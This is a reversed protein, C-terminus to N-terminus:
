QFPKGESQAGGDVLNLRRQQRRDFLRQWMAHQPGSGALLFDNRTRRQRVFQRDRAEEFLLAPSIDCGARDDRLVPDGAVGVQRDRAQHRQTPVAGEDSDRGVVMERNQRPRSVCAAFFQIDRDADSIMGRNQHGGTEIEPKALIFKRDGARQQPLRELHDAAGPGTKQDRRMAFAHQFAAEIGTFGEGLSRNALEVTHIFIVAGADDRRKRSQGAAPVAIKWIM